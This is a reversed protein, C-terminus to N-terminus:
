IRFSTLQHRYRDDHVEVRRKFSAASNAENRLDAVDFVSHKREADFTPQCNAVGMRLFTYGRIGFCFRASRFDNERDDTFHHRRRNYRICFTAAPGDAVM